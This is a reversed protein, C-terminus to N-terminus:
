ATMRGTRVAIATAPFDSFVGDVGLDFFQEYEPEPREAYDTALFIPENRFTYPHVLLGATHAQNVLDTPPLLHGAATSPVILRKDPGIGQAYHAIAGLGSPTILDAYTQAKGDQAFDFPQNQPKGILQVFPLPTLERLTQLNKVEFSQIFVPSEATTYGFAKLTEVLPTELALGIARFYSPHKTEPYIGIARGIEHSKQQVLKLIETLTPIEFQGNFPLNHPRQAPIREKARLTKLEALTFDETFWGQRHAGDITKTTFRDGFEAHDKIDTTESIENEHRAILIGDKTAVLDPEIYDAGHAIALEYSALTHEPRWGCAGRHGIIIPPKGTLTSIM